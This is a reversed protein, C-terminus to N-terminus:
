RPARSWWGVLHRHESSPLVEIPHPWYRREFTEFAAASGEASGRTYLYPCEQAHAHEVCREVEAEPMREFSGTNVALDIRDPRIRDTASLPVFAFDVGPPVADQDAGAYFACEAEPFAAILRTASFLLLEPLDSVICTTDPFLTKFAHTFEGAGAGIEWLVRRGQEGTPPRLVAGRELAIMTEFTALTAANCLDGEIEVGLGGFSRPEAVLLEDSGGAAVILAARRAGLDRRVEENGARYDAPTMGNVPRAHRSLRAIVLPGADLVYDVDEAAHQWDGFG